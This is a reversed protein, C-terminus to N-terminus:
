KGCIGERLHRGAVWGTTGEYEVKCWRPRSKIIAKKEEDSLSTFEQFTLGGQCGLNRVCQGDPPIEGIKDSKPTPETRINLVDDSAVGHVQWHDPGDAEAQVIAPFLFFVAIAICSFLSLYKM